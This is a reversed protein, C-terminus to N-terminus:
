REDLRAHRLQDLLSNRQFTRRQWAIFSDAKEFRETFVVFRFDNGIDRGIFSQRQVLLTIEGIKATAWM